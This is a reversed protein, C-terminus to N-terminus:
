RRAANWSDVQQTLFSGTARYAAVASDMSGFRRGLLTRLQAERTDLRQTEATVAAQERSNRATASTMAGQRGTLRDRLAGLGASLGNPGAFLKALADPRSDLATALRGENISLSGDRNTSVGLEALSTSGAKLRVLGRLGAALSALAPDSGSAIKGLENFAGIFDALAAKADAVNVSAGVTVTTGPQARLLDLRLGPIADDIRNSDRHLTVGDVRVLSDSAAAAIEMQPSAVTLNLQALGPVGSETVDLMFGNRDGERGKLTLRYGDGDKAISAAIPGGLANIADRVGYLSDNSPGITVTQPDGAAAFATPAKAVVTARGASIVITGQGQPAAPDAFSMSVATQATAVAAIEVTAPSIAAGGTTTVSLLTPDSVTAAAGLRGGSVLQATASVFADLGARAQSLASVRAAVADSRATLQRTAAARDAGALEDILKATDIGSGAGLVSSIAVM